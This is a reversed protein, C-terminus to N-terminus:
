KIVCNEYNNGVFFHIFGRFITGATALIYDPDCAQETVGGAHIEGARWLISNKDADPPRVGFYLDRAPSVKVPTHPDSRSGSPPININAHASKRGLGRWGGM